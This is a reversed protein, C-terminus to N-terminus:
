YRRGLFVHPWALLTRIYADAFPRALQLARALAAKADQQFGPFEASLLAFNRYIRVLQCPHAIEPLSRELVKEVTYLCELRQEPDDVLRAHSINLSIETPSGTRLNSSSLAQKVLNHVQLVREWDHWLRKLEGSKGQSIRNLYLAVTALQEAQDPNLTHRSLNDLIMKTLFSLYEIRSKRRWAWPLRLYSYNVWMTDVFTAPNYCHSQGEEENSEKWTQDIDAVRVAGCFELKLKLKLKEKFM